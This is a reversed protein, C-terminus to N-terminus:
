QIEFESRSYFFALSHHYTEGVMEVRGTEFLKKFSELADPAWKELQELVTGTMSLSLKFEPHKKLLKLLRKNTPLYSKEAVKRIIRENSTQAEFDGYFYNHDS